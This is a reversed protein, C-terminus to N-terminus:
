KRGFLWKIWWPAESASLVAVIISAVLGAVGGAVAPSSMWGWLRSPLPQDREHILRGIYSKGQITLRYHPGGMPEVLGLDFLEQAIGYGQAESYGLQKAVVTCDSTHILSPDEIDRSASEYLQGLFRIKAEESEAYKM